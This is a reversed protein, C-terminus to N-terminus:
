RSAKIWAAKYQRLYEAEDMDFSRAALRASRSLIERRSADGLLGKLSVAMQASDGVSVVVAADKEALESAVGVNTSVISCGAAAAEVLSLGFGEYRSSLLYVDASLFYPSVDRQWGEFRIHTDLSLEKSLHELHPRERGDGVIILGVNPFSAHVPRFAEVAQNIAKEKELRSVMLITQTFEPYKSFLFTTRESNLLPKLSSFIPLIVPAQALRIGRREISEAIRKSVVRVCSAKPLLIHAVASRLRNLLSHSVFHRSLFDTHAQLHLPAHLARSLLYSVVGAEFPDQSSILTVGSTKIKKGIRFADFVYLARSYSNTPYVYVNDALKKNQCGHSRLSFVIVHLEDVMKGYLRTRRVVDSADDFLAKDSGIVIVTM